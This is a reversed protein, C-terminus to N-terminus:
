ENPDESADSGESLELEETRRRRKGKCIVDVEAARKGVVAIPLEEKACATDETDIKKSALVGTDVGRDGSLAIGGVVDILGAQELAASRTEAEQRDVASKMALCAREGVVAGALGSSTQKTLVVQPVIEKGSIRREIPSETAESPKERVVAGTSGSGLQQELSMEEGHPVVDEASVLRGPPSKVVGSGAEETSKADATAGRVDVDVAINQDIQQEEGTSNSSEAEYLDEITDIIYDMKQRIVRLDRAEPDWPPVKARISPNSGQVPKPKDANEMEYRQRQAEFHEAWEQELSRLRKKDIYSDLSVDVDEAETMTRYCRQMFPIGRENDKQVVPPHGLDELYSNVGELICGDRTKLINKDIIGKQDAVDWGKVYPLLSDARVNFFQATSGWVGYYRGRVMDAPLWEIVRGPYYGGEVTEIVWVVSKSRQMLADYAAQLLNLRYELEACNLGGAKAEELDERLAQRLAHLRVRLSMQSEPDSPLHKLGLLAKAKAVNVKPMQIADADQPESEGGAKQVRNSKSRKPQAKKSSPM